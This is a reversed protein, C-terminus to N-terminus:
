GRPTEAEGGSRDKTRRVCSSRTGAEAKTSWRNMRGARTLLKRKLGIPSDSGGEPHHVLTFLIALVKFSHRATHRVAIGRRRKMDPNRGALKVAQGGRSGGGSKSCPCLFKFSSDVADTNVAQNHHPEKLHMASNRAAFKATKHVCLMHYHVDYREERLM